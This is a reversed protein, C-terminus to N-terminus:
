GFSSSPVPLPPAGEMAEWRLFMDLITDPDFCPGAIQAFSADDVATMQQMIFKLNGLVQPAAPTTTWNDKVRPRVKGGAFATLIQPVMKSSTKKLWMSLDKDELQSVGAKLLGVDVWASGNQVQVPEGNIALESVSMEVEGQVAPMPWWDGWNPPALISHLFKSSLAIPDMFYAEHLPPANGGGCGATLVRLMGNKSENDMDGQTTLTGQPISWRGMRHQLLLQLEQEPGLRFVFGLARKVGGAQSRSGGGFGGSAPQSQGQAAQVLLASIAQAAGNCDNGSIAVPVPDEVQSKQDPITIKVGYQSQLKKITAGAKGIVHGVMAKPVPVLMEGGQSPAGFM